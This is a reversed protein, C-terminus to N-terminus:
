NCIIANISENNTTFGALLNEASSTKFCAQSDPNKFAKRTIKIINSRFNRLYICRVFKM